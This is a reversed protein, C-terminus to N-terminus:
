VSLGGFRALRLLGIDHRTEGDLTLDAAIEGLVSCFKFGHGSGGGVCVVEPADPHFDVVFHEDPTNEFLCAKLTM